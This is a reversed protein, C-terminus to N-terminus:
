LITGPFLVNGELFFTSNSVTDRDPMLFITDLAVLAGEDTRM